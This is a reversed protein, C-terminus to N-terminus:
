SRRARCRDRVTNALAAVGRRPVRLVKQGGLAETAKHSIETSTWIVAVDSWGLMRAITKRDPRTDETIFRLGLRGGCLKQLDGRTGPSGGVVLLKRWGVATMATIMEEVARRNDSGGCSQCHRPSVPVPRRTDSVSPRCDPKRCHRVFAAGLAEDVAAVKIVAIRVKGPRTLGAQYLLELAAKGSDGAFGRAAFLESLAMDRM